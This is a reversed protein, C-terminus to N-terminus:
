GRFALLEGPQQGPDQCMVRLILSHPVRLNKRGIMGMLPGSLRFAGKPTMALEHDVRTSDGDVTLRFRHGGELGTPIRPQPPQPDTDFVEVRLVAPSATLRLQPGAPREKDQVAARPPKKAQVHRLANTVLECAVLIATDAAEDLGWSTLVQRAARRALGAAADSARTSADRMPCPSTTAASLRVSTLGWSFSAAPAMASARRRWPRVCMFLWQWEGRIRRDRRSSHGGGCGCMGGAGPGGPRAPSM